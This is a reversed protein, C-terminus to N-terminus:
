SSDGERNSLVDVAMIQQTLHIDDKDEKCLKRWAKHVRERDRAPLRSTQTDAHASPPVLVATYDMDIDKHSRMSFFHIAMVENM